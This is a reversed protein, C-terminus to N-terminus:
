ITLRNPWKRDFPIKSMQQVSERELLHGEIPLTIIEGKNPAPRGYIRFRRASGDKRTLEVSHDYTM